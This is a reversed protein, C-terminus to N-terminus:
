KDLRDETYLKSLLSSITLGIKNRKAKGYELSALLTSASSGAAKLAEMLVYPSPYIKIIAEAKDASLAHLQMLQKAFM